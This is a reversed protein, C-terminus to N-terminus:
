KVVEDLNDRAIMNLDEKFASRCNQNFFCLVIHVSFTDRIVKLREAPTQMLEITAIKTM